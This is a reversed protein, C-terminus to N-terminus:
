NFYSANTDIGTIQSIEPTIEDFGPLFVYETQTKFESQNVPNHYDNMSILSNSNSIKRAIDKALLYLLYHTPHETTTFFRIHNIYDIVFRFHPFHSQEINYILIELSRDYEKKTLSNFTLRLNPLKYIIANKNVLTEIYSACVGYDHIHQQYLFIDCCNQLIHLIRNNVKEMNFHDFGKRDCFWSIIIFINHTIM